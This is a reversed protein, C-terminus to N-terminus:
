SGGLEGALRTLMAAGTRAEVASLEEKGHGDGGRATVTVTVPGNRLM